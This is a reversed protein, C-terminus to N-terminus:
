SGATLAFTGRVLLLLGSILYLLRAGRALLLRRRTPRGSPMPPRAALFLFCAGAVFALAIGAGRM